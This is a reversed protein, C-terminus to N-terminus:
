NITLFKNIEHVIDSIEENTKPNHGSHLITLYKKPSNADNFANHFLNEPIAEDKEMYLFLKPIELHLKEDLKEKTYTLAEEQAESNLEYEEGNHSFILKNDQTEVYDRHGKFGNIHAFLAASIFIYSNVNEHNAFLAVMGGLSHGALIINKSINEECFKIVANLDEIFGSITFDFLNGESEGNHNSADFCLISYGLKNLEHAGVSFLRQSMRGRFGHVFIIAPKNVDGVYHKCAIKLGKKNEISFTEM